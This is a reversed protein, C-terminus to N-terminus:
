QLLGIRVYAQEAYLRCYHYHSLPVVKTEYRHLKEHLLVRSSFGLQIAVQADTDNILKV